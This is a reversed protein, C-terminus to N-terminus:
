AAEEWPLPTGLSQFGAQLGKLFRRVEPTLRDFVVTVEVLDPRDKLPAGILFHFMTNRNEPVAGDETWSAAAAQDRYVFFEQRATGATWVWPKSFAHTEVEDVDQFVCDHGPWHQRCAHLIVDGLCERAPALLLVDFGFM